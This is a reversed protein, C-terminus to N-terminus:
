AGDSAELGIEGPMKYYVTPVVTVSDKRFVFFARQENAMEWGIAMLEVMDDDRIKHM